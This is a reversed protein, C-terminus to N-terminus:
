FAWRAAKQIVRETVRQILPYIPYFDAIESALSVPVMHDPHVMQAMTDFLEVKGSVVRRQGMPLQKELYDHHAHFFVLRFETEADRVQVHYPRGKARPPIHQLVEVEVTVTAPLIVERITSRAQRDIGSHPLTFLLDRPKEVGLGEFSRATKPGIGDLVSLESFLQFLIEPRGAM